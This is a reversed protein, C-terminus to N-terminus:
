EVVHEAVSNHFKIGKNVICGFHILERAVKKPLIENICQKMGSIALDECSAISYLFCILNRGEESGLTNISM